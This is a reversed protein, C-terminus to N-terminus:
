SPWEPRFAEGDDDAVLQVGTVLVDPGDSGLVLQSRCGFAVVTASATFGWQTILHDVEVQRQARTRGTDGLHGLVIQAVQLAVAYELAARGQRLLDMNLVMILIRPEAGDTVSAPIAYGVIAAVVDEVLHVILPNYAHFAEAHVHSVRSLVARLAEIGDSPDALRRPYGTAADPDDSQLITPLVDPQGSALVIRMRCDVGVVTPPTTFGWHKVLQDVEAQRRTRSKGTDGPHGLVIQAVQLAVAYELAAREQRLLDMNVLILPIRPKPREARHPSLDRWSIEAVVEELFSVVAPDHALFTNLESESLRRLVGRFLDLLESSTLEGAQGWWAFIRSTRDGLPAALGSM